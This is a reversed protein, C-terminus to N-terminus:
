HQNWVWVLGLRMVCVSSNATVKSSCGQKDVSASTNAKRNFTLTPFPVPWGFKFTNVIFDQQIRSSSTLFRDIYLQCFLRSDQLFVAISQLSHKVAGFCHFTMLGSSTWEADQPLHHRWATASALFSIGSFKECCQFFGMSFLVFTTLCLFSLSLRLFVFHHPLCLIVPHVKYSCLKFQSSWVLNFFFVQSQASLSWFDLSDNRAVVDRVWTVESICVTLKWWRQSWM